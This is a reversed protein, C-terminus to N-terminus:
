TILQTSMLRKTWHNLQTNAVWSLFFSLVGSNEVRNFFLFDRGSFALSRVQVEVVVVGKSWIVWAVAGRAEGVLENSILHVGEKVARVEGSKRLWCNLVKGQLYASIIEPSPCGVRIGLFYCARLPPPDSAATGSHRQTACRWQTPTGRCVL